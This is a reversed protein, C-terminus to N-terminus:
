VSLSLSNSIVETVSSYEVIAVKLEDIQKNKQLLFLATRNHYHIIYNLM